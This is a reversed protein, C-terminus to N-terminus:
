AVLRASTPQESIIAPSSRGASQAVTASAERRGRGLSGKGRGDSGNNQPGSSSVNGPRGALWLAAGCADCYRSGDLNETGCRECITMAALGTAPPWFQRDQALLYRIAFSNVAGVPHRDRIM